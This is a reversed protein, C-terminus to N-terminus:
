RRSSHANMLTSGTTRCLSGRELLMLMEEASSVCEEKAGHVNVEGGQGERITVQMCYAMHAYADSGVYQSM